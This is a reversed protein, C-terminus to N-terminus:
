GKDNVPASGSLRRKRRVRGVRLAEVEPLLPQVWCTQNPYMRGSVEVIQEARDRALPGVSTVSGDPGKWAVLCDAGVPAATHPGSVVTKGPM